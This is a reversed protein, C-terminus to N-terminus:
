PRRQHYGILEARATLHNRMAAEKGSHAAAGAGDATAGAGLIVLLYM